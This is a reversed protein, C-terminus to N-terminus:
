KLNTRYLRAYLALVHEKKQGEEAALNELLENFKKFAHGTKAREEIIKIANKEEIERNILEVLLKHIEQEM